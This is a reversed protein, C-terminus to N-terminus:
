APQCWDRLWCVDLGKPAAKQIISKVKIEMAEIYRPNTVAAIIVLTFHKDELIDLSQLARLLTGEMNVPTAHDYVADGEKWESDPGTWYTPIIMYTRM